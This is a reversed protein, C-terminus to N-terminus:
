WEQCIDPLGFDFKRLHRVADKKNKWSMRKSEHCLGCAFRTGEKELFYDYAQAPAFGGQLPFQVRRDGVPHLLASPSGCECRELIGECGMGNGLEQRRTARM